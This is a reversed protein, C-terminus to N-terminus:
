LIDSGKNLLPLNSAPDNNPSPRDTCILIPGYKSRFHLVIFSLILITAMTFMALAICYGILYGINDLATKFRATIQSVTFYTITQHAVTINYPWCEVTSGYYKCDVQGNYTWSVYCVGDTMYVPCQEPYIPLTLPYIFIILAAVASVAVWVASIAVWCLLIKVRGM